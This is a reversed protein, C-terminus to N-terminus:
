IENPAQFLEDVIEWIETEGQKVTWYWWESGWLYFEDFGTNKAFELNERLQEPSMTKYQTELSHASIPQWEVWPEAQLEGIIIRTDPNWLHAWQAKRHYMVAPYPYEVYGITPDHIIRFLTSAFIDAKGPSKFWFSHEGTDTLIIPRSSDLERVLAIEKDVQDEDIHSEPCLGFSLFPENEIQWAFVAPHDKFHNVVVEIMDLTAEEREEKSLGEAWEPMRCEPWRPLKFGVALFAKGGRKELEALEWDWQSFDFQGQEPEVENWYVPLRFNRIGADDLLALFTEQYDLGLEGTQHRTFTAGWTINEAPETEGVFLFVFVGGVVLISAVIVGLFGFLIKRKM